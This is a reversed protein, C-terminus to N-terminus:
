RMRIIVKPKIVGEKSVESVAASFKPARIEPYVTMSVRYTPYYKAGHEYVQRDAVFIFALKLIVSPM